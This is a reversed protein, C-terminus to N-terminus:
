KSLMNGSRASRFLSKSTSSKSGQDSSIFDHNEATHTGPVVVKRYRPIISRNRNLLQDTSTFNWPEFRIVLLSNAERDIEKIEEIMMNLISTKGCGWPGLLGICLSDVIGYKTITRALNRAYSARGLADESQTSIPFDSNYMNM